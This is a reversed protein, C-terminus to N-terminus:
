AGVADLATRYIREIDALKGYGEDGCAVLGRDPEVIIVGRSRLKEMNERVAPHNYM